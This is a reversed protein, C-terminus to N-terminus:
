RAPPQGGGAASGTNGRGAASQRDVAHLLAVTRERVVPPAPVKGDLAPPGMRTVRRGSTELDATLRDVTKADGAELAEGLTDLLRGTEVWAEPPLRWDLMADLAQRVDWALDRGISAGM